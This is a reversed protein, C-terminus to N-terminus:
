DHRFAFALTTAAARAASAATAVVSAIGRAFFGDFRFDRALQENTTEGELRTVVSKAAEVLLPAVNIVTDNHLFAFASLSNTYTGFPIVLKHDFDLTLM